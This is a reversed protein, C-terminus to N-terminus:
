FCVGSENWHKVTKETLKMGGGLIKFQVLFLQSILVLLCRFDIWILCFCIIQM